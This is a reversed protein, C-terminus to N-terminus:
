RWSVLGSSRDEDSEMFDESTFKVYKPEVTKRKIKKRESEQYTKDFKQQKSLPEDVPM